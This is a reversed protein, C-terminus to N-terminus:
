DIRQNILCALKTLKSPHHPINLNDLAKCLVRQAASATESSSAEIEVEYATAGFAYSTSDIEARLNEIEKAEEESVKAVSAIEKMSHVERYTTFDGYVILPGKCDRSVEAFVPSAKVVEDFCKTEVAKRAIEAPITNEIETARSLGDTMVHKGKCTVLCVSQQEPKAPPYFFRLRLVTRSSRLSQAEDDIFLNRQLGAKMPESLAAKLAEFGEKTSIREKAEIEM